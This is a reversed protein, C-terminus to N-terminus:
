NHITLVKDIKKHNKILGKQIIAQLTHWDGAFKDKQVIGTSKIYETRVCWQGWDIHGFAIEGNIVGYRFLHNIAQWCILDAGTAIMETIEQIANPLYYDQISTNITYPTTVLQKVAKDRNECGWKGTNTVSERYRLRSDKYSEIWEKIGSTCPGNNFVICEWNSNSQNLLSEILPAKYRQENFSPAITTIM